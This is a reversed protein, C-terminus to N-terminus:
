TKPYENQQQTRTYVGKLKKKEKDARSGLERQIITHATENPWMGAIRGCTRMHASRFGFLAVSTAPLWTEKRKKRGKEKERGKNGVM